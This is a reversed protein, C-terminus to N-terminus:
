AMTERVISGFVTHPTAFGPLEAIRAMWDLVAQSVTDLVGTAHAYPLWAYCAVDAVTAHDGVLFSRKSLVERMRELDQMARHEYWQAVAAPHTGFQHAFCAHALNLGMRESEWALWERVKLRQSEDGEQLTSERRALYECIVNSQCIALGDILLVPVEDFKAVARFEAPRAARPMSLDILRLEHELGVLRLMLAAKYAYGSLPAAYLVPTEVHIPNSM